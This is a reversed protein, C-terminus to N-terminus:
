CVAFRVRLIKAKKQTDQRWFFRVFNVVLYVPLRTIRTTKTYVAQRGLLPSQKEISEKLSQKEADAFWVSCRARVEQIGKELTGVDANIHCSLKIAKDTTYTHPEDASESNAWESKLHVGMIDDIISKGDDAKLNQGVVTVIQSWCEDADQQAYGPGEQSRQAFQPYATRFLQLLVLPIVTQGSTSMMKFTDRLSATITVTPDANTTTGGFSSLSKTLEPVAYLCQLTANM